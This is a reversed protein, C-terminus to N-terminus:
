RSTSRLYDGGRGLRTWTTGDNEVKFEVVTGNQMAYVHAYKRTHAALAIYDDVPPWSLHIRRTWVSAEM